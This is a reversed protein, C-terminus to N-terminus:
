SRSCCFRMVTKEVRLGALPCLLHAEICYTYSRRRNSECVKGLGSTTRSGEATSGGYDPCYNEENGPAQRRFDNSSDVARSGEDVNGLGVMLPGRRFGQAADVVFGGYIGDGSDENIQRGALCGGAECWEVRGRGGGEKPCWWLSSLEVSESESV